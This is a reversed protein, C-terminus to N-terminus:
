FYILLSLDFVFSLRQTLYKWDTLVYGMGLASNLGFRGRRLEAGVLASLGQLTKQEHGLVYAFDWIGLVMQAAEVKIGGYQLDLYPSISAFKLPLYYKLGVSYFLENKVWDTESYILTTPYLGVGAHISFGAGTNFQLSGGAGGLSPGYGLGLTLLGRERRSPERRPLRAPTAAPPTKAPVVAPPKERPEEKRASPPLPAPQVIKWAADERPKERGPLKVARSRPLPTATLTEVPIVPKTEEVRVEDKKPPEIAPVPAALKWVAKKPEPMQRPLKIVKSRPLRGAILTEKTTEAPLAVAKEPLAEVKEPEATKKAPAPPPEEVVPEVASEHIFGSIRSGYTPSQYSVYYWVNRVKKQQFLILITGKEVVDIRASGRTPESYISAREATVRVEKIRASLSSVLSVGTLLIFSIRIIQRKRMLLGKEIYDLHAQITLCIMCTKM